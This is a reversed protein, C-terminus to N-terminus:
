VKHRGVRLVNVKVKVVRFDMSRDRQFKQEERAAKRTSYITGRIDADRNMLAWGSVGELERRCKRALVKNTVRVAM